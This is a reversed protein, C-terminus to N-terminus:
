IGEEVFKYLEDMTNIGNIQSRMRASDKLGATYWALHKRMELIAIHEGKLDVMMAAHRVIMQKREDMDPEPLLKGTKLFHVTRRIMWPNGKLARGIMVADAKTQNLMRVADVPFFVDGNGIVPISVSEKVKKIIAWDAMGSYMQSRTRGHITIASVGASEAMKAFEVANVHNEDYGKRFKVTVPCKAVRCITDLITFAKDPDKMIAAGDGNGTIKPMPCGMNVDIIDFGYKEVAKCAEDAMLGPESGFIQMAAPHVNRPNYLYVENKKNGYFLGKASIMETCTLGAGM